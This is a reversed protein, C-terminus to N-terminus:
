LGENRLASVPAPLYSSWFVFLHWGLLRTLILSGLIELWQLRSVLLIQDREKGNHLFMKPILKALFCIEGGGGGLTGM